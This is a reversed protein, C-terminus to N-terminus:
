EGLIGKFFDHHEEEDMLIKRFLHVTTEDGEERAKEIIEKYLAIAGLEDNKDREMMEKLTEGVFIPNPQTTPEGGLYVLREHDERGWKNKVGRSLSPEQPM